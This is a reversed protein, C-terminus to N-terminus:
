VMKYPILKHSSCCRRCRELVRARTDQDENMEVEVATDGNESLYAFCVSFRLPRPSFHRCFSSM